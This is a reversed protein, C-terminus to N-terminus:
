LPSSLLLIRNTSDIISISLFFKGCECRVLGSFHVNTMPQETTTVRMYPRVFLVAFLFPNDSLFTRVYSLFLLIILLVKRLDLIVCVPM